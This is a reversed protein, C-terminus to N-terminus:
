NVKNEKAKCPTPDPLKRKKNEKCFYWQINDGDSEGIKGTATDYSNRAQTTDKWEYKDENDQLLMKTYGNTIAASFYAHAGKLPRSRMFLGVFQSCGITVQKAIESDDIQQSILEPSMLYLDPDIMCLTTLVTGMGCERAIKLDKFKEFGEGEGNVWVKEIYGKSCQAYGLQNKYHNMAPQNEGTKVFENTLAAFFWTFDDNMKPGYAGIEKKIYYTVEGLPCSEKKLPEVQLTQIEDKDM